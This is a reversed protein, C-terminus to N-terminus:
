TQSIEKLVIGEVDLWTAVFLIIANKEIVLYYERTYIYCMKKLSDDISPCM